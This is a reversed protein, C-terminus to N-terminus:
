EVFTEQAGERPQPRHMQRLLGRAAVDKKQIVRGSAPFPEKSVGRCGASARSCQGAQLLSISVVLCFM